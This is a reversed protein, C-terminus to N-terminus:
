RLVLFGVMPCDAHRKSQGCRITFCSFETDPNECIDEFIQNFLQLIDDTYDDVGQTEDEEDVTSYRQNSQATIIHKIDDIEHREMRLVRLEGFLTSRNAM